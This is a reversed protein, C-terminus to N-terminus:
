FTFIDNLFFYEWSFKLIQHCCFIFIDNFFIKGGFNSPSHISQRCFNSTLFPFSFVSFKKTCNAVTTVTIERETERGREREGEKERKRGREKEREGERDEAREKEKDNKEIIWLARVTIYKEERFVM